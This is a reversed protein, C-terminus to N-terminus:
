HVFFLKYNKIGGRIVFSFVFGLVLFYLLPSLFVWLVGLFTNKYRLKLEYKIFNLIFFKYENIEKVFGNIFKFM